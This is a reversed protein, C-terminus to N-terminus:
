QSREERLDAALRRAHAALIEDEVFAAHRGRCIDLRANSEFRGCEAIRDRRDSGVFVRTQFEGIPHACRRIREERLCENIAVPLVKELAAQDLRFVVDAVRVRRRIGFQEGREFLMEDGTAKVQLFEDSRDRSRIRILQTRRRIPVVDDIALIIRTVVRPAQLSLHQEVRNVADGSRLGVERVERGARSGDRKGVVAVVALGGEQSDEAAGFTFTDAFALSDM